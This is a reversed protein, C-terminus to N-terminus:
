LVRRCSAKATFRIAGRGNRSLTVERSIDLGVGVMLIGRCNDGSKRICEVGVFVLVEDFAFACIPNRRRIFLSVQADSPPMSVDRIIV